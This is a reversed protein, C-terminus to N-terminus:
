HLTKGSSMRDLVEGLTDPDAVYGAQPEDFQRLYREVHGYFRDSRRDGQKRAEDQKRFAAMRAQSGYFEMLEDAEALVRKRYPPWWMM